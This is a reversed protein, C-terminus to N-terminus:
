CDFIEIPFRLDKLLLYIQVKPGQFFTTDGPTKGMSKLYFIM